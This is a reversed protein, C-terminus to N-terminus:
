LQFARKRFRIRISEAVTNLAFTMIFLTLAALFLMRYNTGNQVAEPLEVAINASLTRFGNFINWDLVPTNGAAMLVIMTEGVARGLGIMVASFLGSMATPIIIRIATQWPTAGAGLSAARLHEPVASLADEAITYIIPIVAFGMVFGVILANRQVYTGLYSYADGGYSGRPDFGIASGILALLKALLFALLITLGVGIIFKLLHTFSVRFRDLAATRDRLVPNIFITMLLTSLLASIPLMLIMWGGTADRYRAGADPDAPNFSWALWGKIDGGFLVNEFIGGFTWAMAISVPILVVMALFRYRGYRLVTHYPLLQWLFAATLLTLPMMVFLLLVAPVFNEVFPAFVLAALFGLVVSPLSAMIEITPKIKAKTRAHLFESTFIAALLAIPVAFLMSYATAKITGFILPILGYKPEFEDSGSSSQWVHEPREFGEYWVKGFISSLTTQPHPFNIDWRSVSSTSLALLGNDKPSMTLAVVPETAPLAQIEALMQQSTVHFLRARGNDYGALLMRTRPSAAFSRVAVGASGGPMEHVRVLLSSDVTPPTEDATYAPKVRFWTTIRGSSDGILMTMKGIMTGVATLAIDPEDILDMSEAFVPNERERTDLRVLFGDPWIMMATDARGELLLDRPLGRRAVEDITMRGGSLRITEGGTMINRTRRVSNIRFVGDETLSVFIPGSMQMSLDVLAVPQDTGLSVPPDMDIRLRQLRFQGTPTLQMMGDRFAVPTGPEITRLAPDVDALALFTTEFAINALRVTGDAFGFLTHGGRISFSHSTPASEEFLRQESLLDGTDLRFTKVSGDAFYAWGMIEYEDVAVHLPKEDNAAVPSPRQLVEETSGSRFLPIVVSALFLCVTVVAIITGIGAITILIRSVIDAAKVRLGTKRRRVRGTITSSQEPM